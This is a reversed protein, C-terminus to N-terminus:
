LTIELIGEGVARLKDVSMESLRLALELYPRNIPKSVFEQLDSPLKLFSQVVRQESAWVGVPGQRDLFKYLPQNLAAALTELRPMSLPAEGLECSELEATTMGAKEALGDPSIGAEQRAQRLMAGIMRHRLDSVKSVLKGVPKREGLVRRGWFHDPPIQLFYALAELEPLSPPRVGEEYAELQETSVGVAEACEEPSKGTAERADRMLVGLIKSRLIMTQTINEM